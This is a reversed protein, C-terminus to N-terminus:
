AKWSRISIFCCLKRTSDTDTDMTGLSAKQGSIGFAEPDALTYHLTLTNGSVEKKFLEKTFSQFKSNESFGHGSLCGIGMGLLFILSLFLATLTYRHRKSLQSLRSRM